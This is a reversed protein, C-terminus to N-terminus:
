SEGRSILTRLKGGEVSVSTQMMCCSMTSCVSSILLYWGPRGIESPVQLFHKGKALETEVSQRVTCQPFEMQVSHSGRARVLESIATMFTRQPPCSPTRTLVTRQSGVGKSRFAYYRGPAHCLSHFLKTAPLIPTIRHSNPLALKPLPISKLFSIKCAYLSYGILRTYVSSPRFEPALLSSLGRFARPLV